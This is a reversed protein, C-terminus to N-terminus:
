GGLWWIVGTAALFLVVLIGLVVYVTFIVREHRNMEPRGGAGYGVGPRAAREAVPEVASDLHGQRPAQRVQLRAVRDPVHNFM